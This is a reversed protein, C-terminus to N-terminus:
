SPRTPGSTSQSGTSDASAPDFPNQIGPVDPCLDRVELHDVWRNRAEKDIHKQILRMAEEIASKSTDTDTAQVPASEAVPPSAETGMVRADRTRFPM